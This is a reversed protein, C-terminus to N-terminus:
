FFINISIGSLILAGGAIYAVNRMTEANKADEVRNDKIYRKMDNNRYLGYGVLGAGLIDLGIGTFLFAKNKWQKQKREKELQKNIKESDILRTAIEQAVQVMEDTGRLYSTATASRQTKATEVDVLRTDLYFKDGAPRSIESVCVFRVGLQMGLRSIQENNVAGSRQYNHEAALKRLIEETRDIASYKESQSIVRTLEGGMVKHVGQAGPPEEGAMYVAVKQRSDAQQAAALGCFVLLAIFTTRAFLLVPILTVISTIRKM